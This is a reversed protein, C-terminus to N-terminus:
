FTLTAYPQTHVLLPRTKRLIEAHTNLNSLASKKDSDLQVLDLIQQCQFLVQRGRYHKIKLFNSLVGSTLQCHHGSLPICIPFLNKFSYTGTIFYAENLNYYRCETSSLQVQLPSSKLRM